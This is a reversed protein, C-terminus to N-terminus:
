RAIHDLYNTLVDCKDRMSDRATATSFTNMLPLRSCHMLTSTHDRGRCVAINRLTATAAGNMAAEEGM